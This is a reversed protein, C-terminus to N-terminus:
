GGYLYLEEKQMTNDPAISFAGLEEKAVLKREVEGGIQIPHKIHEGIM